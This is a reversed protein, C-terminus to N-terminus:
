GKQPESPLTGVARLRFGRAQALGALAIEFLKSRERILATEGRAAIISLATVMEQLADEAGKLRILREAHREGLAFAEEPTM